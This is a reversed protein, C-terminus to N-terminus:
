KHVKVSVETPKGGTPRQSTFIRLKTSGEQLGLLTVIGGGAEMRAIKPNEIGCFNVGKYSVKQGVAINVSSPLREVNAAKTMGKRGGDFSPAITQNKIWPPEGAVAPTASLALVLAVAVKFQGRM